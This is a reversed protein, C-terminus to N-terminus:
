KSIMLEDAIEFGKGNRTVPLDHYLTESKQPSALGLTGSLSLWPPAHRRTGPCTGPCTNGPFHGSHRRGIRRLVCYRGSNNLGSSSLSIGLVTSGLLPDGFAIVKDALPDPGSYIGVGGEFSAEFAM